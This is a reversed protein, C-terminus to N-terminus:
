YFKSGVPTVWLINDYKDSQYIRLFDVYLSTEKPADDEIVSPGYNSVGYSVGTLFFVPTNIYSTNTEKTLDVNLFVDGDFAFSMEYPTWRVSYYHYDEALSGEKYTFKKKSGFKGGDLSNHGTVTNFHADENKFWNHINSSYFSENGFNELIDLEIRSRYTVPTKGSVPNFEYTAVNAWLATTVPYNAIKAYFEIIGYMAALTGQTTPQGSQFDERNLRKAPVVMSGNQVYVDRSDPKYVTGGMVSADEESNNDYDRWITRDLSKGNFEDHWALYYDESNKDATGTVSYGAPIDFDTKKEICNEQIDTLHSIAACIQVDDTGNVILKNGVIKVCWQDGTLGKSEERNTEGIIIEKESVETDTDKVCAVEFGAKESFNSALKEVGETWLLSHKKPVVIVYDAVSSGNIIASKIEYDYKKIFSFGDVLKSFEEASQCFNEVFYRIAKITANEDGGYIAIKKGKVSIIFDNICNERNAKLEEAAQKSIDRNTSGCVIEYTNDSSLAEIDTKRIVKIDFTKNLQRYINTFEDYENTKMFTSPYILTYLFTGDEAMIDADRLVVKGSGLSNGGCGTFLTIFSMMFSIIMILRIRNM